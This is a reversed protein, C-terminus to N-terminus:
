ESDYGGGATEALLQLWLRWSPIALNSNSRHDHLREM